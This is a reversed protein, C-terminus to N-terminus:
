VGLRKGANFLAAKMLASKTVRTTQFSKSHSSTPMSSIFLMALTSIKDFFYQFTGVFGVFM